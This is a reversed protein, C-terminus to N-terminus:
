NRHRKLQNQPHKLGNWRRERTNIYLSHQTFINWVKKHNNSWFPSEAKPIVVDTLFFFTCFKLTSAQSLMMSLHGKTRNWKIERKRKELLQIWDTTQGERYKEYPHLQSILVLEFMYIYILILPPMFTLLIIANQIYCQPMHGSSDTVAISTEM